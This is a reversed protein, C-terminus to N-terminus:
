DKAPPKAFIDDIQDETNVFCLEIDGKQVYDKIFDNKIDIYKSRSHQILNKALNIASTNDCLIPIKTYRM